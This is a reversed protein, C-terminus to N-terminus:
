ASEAMSALTPSATTGVHCNQVAYLHYTSAVQNGAFLALACPHMSQQPLPLLLRSGSCVETKSYMGKGPVESVAAMM